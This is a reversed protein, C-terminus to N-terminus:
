AKLYIHIENKFSLSSMEIEYDRFSPKKLFFLIAMKEYLEHIFVIDQIQVILMLKIDAFCKLIEFKIYLSMTLIFLFRYM